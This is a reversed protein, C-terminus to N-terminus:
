CDDSDDTCREYLRRWTDVLRDADSEVRIDPMFIVARQTGFLSLLRWAQSISLEAEIDGLYPTGGRAIFEFDTHASFRRRAEPSLLNVPNAATPNARMYADFEARTRLLATRTQIDHDLALIDHAAPHAPLAPAVQATPATQAGASAALALAVGGLVARLPVRNM